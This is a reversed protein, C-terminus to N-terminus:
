LTTRAAEDAEARAQWRSTLRYLERRRRTGDFRSAFRVVVYNCALALALIGWRAPGSYTWFWYWLAGCPIMGVIVLALRARGRGSRYAASIRDLEADRRAQFETLTTADEPRLQGGESASTVNAM